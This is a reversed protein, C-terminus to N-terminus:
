LYESGGGGSTCGEFRLTVRTGISSENPVTNAITNPPPPKIDEYVIDIGDETKLDANITILDNTCEFNDESTNEVKIETKIQDVEQDDAAFIYGADFNTNKQDVEQDDAISSENPVTNAITNPHPPKIDEYVIDIGDETKLDANITILDHPCEFNDESTNEVKIETKIQDVEQDDAAFIYGADFNTNKQDVEQDDPTLSAKLEGLNEEYNSGVDTEDEEVTSNQQPRAEFDISSETPVINAITNPHTNLPPKIDEYVIDIGDETKLDANITILDDCEFNDESTHNEKIEKKIQDVEQHDDASVYRTRSPKSKGLYEEYNSSVPENVKGDEQYSEDCM